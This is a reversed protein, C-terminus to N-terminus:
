WTLQALRRWAHLMGLSCYLSVAMLPLFPLREGLLLPLVWSTALELAVLGWLYLREWPILPLAGSSGSAARSSGHNGGRKCGKSGGAAKDTELPLQPLWTAAIVNFTVLLLVKIPYEEPEFLLPFLSYTGVTSLFLFDAAARRGDPMLGAAAMVALPVTVMLIAKEHVHYGLMFSCLTCYLVAAPFARPEPRRWLRLLCPAMAALTWLATAGSGIQPLVAFEAVGVLGGTMTATTGRRGLALSLVKDAAAYLAWVNPAWYAHCLGRAFPFLRRLLQPLQGAAVFPGFSLGLVGAAITGLAVFRLVAQPGRCYRRLMYVFFAPAAYLFIHKFCLLASFLLAALLHREEAAAVMSLTFLGLLMGNYQFHVHDVLLLGPNAGVLFLAALRVARPRKRTAHAAAFLLLGETAIVSLRQFLVTAPSAYELNSVVLMAPDFWAAAHSLTWEFWAFLPPYDLTWQSTEDYYWQTIPLSHTIALWNRHVEFDTSRYTPILLVKLATCALIIAIAADMAIPGVPAGPSARKGSPSGAQQVSGEPQAAAEKAAVATATDNSSATTNSSLMPQPRAAFSGGVGPKPRAPLSFDPHWFGLRAYTQAKQGGHLGGSHLVVPDVPLGQRVRVEYNGVGGFFSRAPLLRYRLPPEDGVGWLFPVIVENWATQDWQFRTAPDLLHDRMAAMFRIAVPTPELYWTGTSACPNQSHLAREADGPGYRWFERLVAGTPTRADPIWKYLQCSATLTDGVRPLEPADGSWDSISQVDYDPRFTPLPDQLVIADSDMYLARFGRAIITAGWYHKQVDFVRNPTDGPQVGQQYEEREPFVRDLIVPFGKANLQHWSANHTTLLLTHGLVGARDLFFCFNSMMELEAQPNAPLRTTTFIVAEHPSATRELLASLTENTVVFEAPVPQEQPQEALRRRLPTRAAAAALQAALCGFLLLLVLSARGPRM